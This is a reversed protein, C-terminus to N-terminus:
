MVLLSDSGRNENPATETPVTRSTLFVNQRDTVLGREQCGQLVELSGGSRVQGSGAQGEVLLINQSGSMNQMVVNQRIRGRSGAEEVLVLNQPGYLNKMGVLGSNVGALGERVVHSSGTSSQILGGVAPGAVVREKVVVSEPGPVGDVVYMTQMNSVAPLDSVLVTNQLQPEMVYQTTQLVPTTAYYVPQQILYAQNQIVANESVAASSLTGIHSTETVVHKEVHSSSQPLSSVNVAGDTVVSKVTTREPRPRQPPPVFMESKLEEGRCIEALTRFKPDLNNLFELDNDTELLSCCGVSGVPSGQGEFSFALLDGKVAENGAMSGVKQLYYEELYHDPLAIGDYIDGTINSHFFSAQDKEKQSFYDTEMAENAHFVSSAGGYMMTSSSQLGGGAALGAVSGKGVGNDLDVSAHILPIAKDEGQGETHYAILHEKTDFPIDTFGGGIGGAAASGCTCFLLLLPVLLLLLLGLLLLGIGASGFTAGKSERALSNCVKDRTCTCAEVKVVQKDPCAQGQQDKIELSVEHPGPWLPKQTRLIATTYIKYKM